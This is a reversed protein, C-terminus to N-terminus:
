EDLDIFNAVTGAYFGDYFDYSDISLLLKGGSLHKSVLVIDCYKVALDESSSLLPNLLLNVMEGVEEGEGLYLGGAQSALVACMSHVLVDNEKASADFTFSVYWLDENEVGAGMGVVYTGLTSTLGGDAVADGYYSKRTQTPDYVINGGLLISDGSFDDSSDMFALYYANYADCWSLLTPNQLELYEGLAPVSVLLLLSLLILSVIRKM